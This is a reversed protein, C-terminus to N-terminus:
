RSICNTEGVINKFEISNCSIKLYKKPLPPLDIQQLSLANIAVQRPLGSILVLTAANEYGFDKNATRIMEILTCQHTYSLKQLDAICFICEGHGYLKANIFRSLLIQLEETTSSTTCYFVEGPKPIRGRRIFISLVTDIVLTVDNTCTVFIPSRKETIGSLENADEVKELLDSRNPSKRDPLPISRISQINNNTINEINNIFYKDLIAGLSTLLSSDNCLTNNWEKKILNSIEISVNSSILQLMNHFERNLYDATYIIVKNKIIKNKKKNINTELEVNNRMSDAVIREM